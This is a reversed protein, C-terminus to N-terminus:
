KVAQVRVSAAYANADFQDLVAGLEEHLTRTPSSPPSCCGGVVPLGDDSTEDPTVACCVSDTVGASAYANLDAGSDSIVVDPFGAATLQERYDDILVAGAICGIWADLNQRIPEPLPQRLAIDSIAVRGGPKLIRHIERFVASKDPVLNIVCNSIVCDVSQDPLPIADISAVHLRINGLGASAASQRARQIMEETMDIGIAQGTEGVKRAALVLDIGGGCGLDVVTEGPQLSALATPNGCSLGLNASEPLAALEEESYGFATAVSHVGTAKGSMGSRAVSAYRDRVQQKIDNQASM